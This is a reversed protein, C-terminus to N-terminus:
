FIKSHPISNKVGNLTSIKILIAVKVGKLTTKWEFVHQGANLEKFSHFNVRKCKSLINFIPHINKIGEVVALAKLETTSYNHELYRLSRGGYSIIKEEVEQVWALILGFGTYSADTQFIFETGDFRPKLTGHKTAYKAYKTGFLIFNREWWIQLLILLITSIQSIDGTIDRLEWSLSSKRFERLFAYYKVLKM